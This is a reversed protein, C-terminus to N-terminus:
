VVTSGNGGTRASDNAPNTGVGFNKGTAAPNSTYDYNRAESLGSGITIILALNLAATLM